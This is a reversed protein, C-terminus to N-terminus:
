AEMEYAALGSTHQLLQRVTVPPISDPLVSPLYQQVEGELLIKGQAVLQLVAVAVFTKAISGIRFYGSSSIPDQTELDAYGASGQWHEDNDVVRAIIGVVDSGPASELIQQLAEFEIKSKIAM